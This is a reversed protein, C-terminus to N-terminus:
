SKTHLIKLTGHVDQQTSTQNGRAFRLREDASDSFQAARCAALPSSRKKEDEKRAMKKWYSLM